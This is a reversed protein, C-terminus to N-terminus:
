DSIEEEKVVIINDEQSVFKEKNISFQFNFKKKFDDISMNQVSDMTFLPSSPTSHESSSVSFIQKMAQQFKEPEKCKKFFQLLADPDKLCLNIQKELLLKKVKERDKIPVFPKMINYESDDTYLYNKIHFIIEAPTYADSPIANLILSDLPDEKMNLYIESIQHTDCKELKIILDFRGARTLAPDLKELHNTTTVNVSDDITLTGDFLNLLYELSFSEGGKESIKTMSFETVKDSRKHVIDTMADIDEFIILGASVEKNVYNFITQIDKNTTAEKLNVYYVNRQLYSAITQITTTKGTGPEGHLMVNLKVPLGLKRLRDKKNKFQELANLLYKKSTERLYLNDISRYVSNIKETTIKPEYTVKDIKKPPASRFLDYLDTNFSHRYRPSFQKNKKEGNDEDIKNSNGDNNMGNSTEKTNKNEDGDRISRLDDIREKWEFYKENDITEINKKHTFNLKYLDIKKNTKTKIVENKSIVKILQTVIQDGNKEMQYKMKQFKKKNQNEPDFLNSLEKHREQNVLNEDDTKDKNIVNERKLQSQIFRTRKHEYIAHQKFYDTINSNKLSIQIKNNPLDPEEGNSPNPIHCSFNHFYHRNNYLNQYWTTNYSNLTTFISHGLTSIPSIGIQKIYQNKTDFPSLNGKPLTTNCKSM